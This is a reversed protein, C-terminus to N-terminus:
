GPLIRRYLRHSKKSRAPFSAGCATSLGLMGRHQLRLLPLHFAAQRDMESVQGEFEPARSRGEHAALHLVSIPSLISACDACSTIAMLNLCRRVGIFSGGRFHLPIIMKTETHVPLNVRYAAIGASLSQAHVKLVIHRDRRV